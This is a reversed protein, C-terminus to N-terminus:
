WEACGESAFHSCLSVRYFIVFDNTKLVLVNLGSSDDRYSVGGGCLIMPPVHEHAGQPGLSVRSSPLVVATTLGGGGWM